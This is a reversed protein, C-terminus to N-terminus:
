KRNASIGYSINNISNIKISILNIYVCLRFIFNGTKSIFPLKRPYKCKQIMPKREALQPNLRKNSRARM